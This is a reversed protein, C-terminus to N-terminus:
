EAPVFSVLFDPHYIPPDSPTVTGEVADYEIWECVPLTDRGTPLDARDLLLVCTWYSTEMDHNPRVDAEYELYIELPNCSVNTLTYEVLHPTSKGHILVAKQSFDVTKLQEYMERGGVYEEGSFAFAFFLDLEERNSILATQRTSFQAFSLGADNYSYLLEFGVNSVPFGREMLWSAKDNLVMGYPPVTEKIMLRPTEPSETTVPAQTTIAATTNATTGVPPADEKRQCGVLSLLLLAALTLCITKKM